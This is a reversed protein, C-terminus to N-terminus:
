SQSPLNKEMDPQIRKLIENIDQESKRDLLWQAEQKTGVKDGKRVELIHDFILKKVVSNASLVKDQFEGSLNYYREEEEPTKNEKSELEAIEKQLKWIDGYPNALASHEKQLSFIESMGLGRFVFTMGDLEVEVIDMFTYDGM